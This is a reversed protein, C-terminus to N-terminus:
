SPECGADAAGCAAPGARAPTTDRSTWRWLALGQHHAVVNWELWVESGDRIWRHALQTMGGGPAHKPRKAPRFAITRISSTSFHDRGCSRGRTGRTAEFAPNV